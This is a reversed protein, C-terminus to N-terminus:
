KSLVELEREIFGQIQGDFVLDPNHEEYDTRHDKVM